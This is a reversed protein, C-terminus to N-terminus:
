RGMGGKELDGRILDFIHEALIENGRSLLHVSDMFIPEDVEDFIDTFDHMWPFRDRNEAIFGNVFKKYATIRATRETDDDNSYARFAELAEIDFRSLRSKTYLSPQAIAYFKIGFETCVGHIMREVAVWHAGRESFGRGYHVENTMLFTGPMPNKQVSKLRAIADFLTDQYSHVFRNKGDFDRGFDNFGSYSVVVDPRLPLFDRCLKIFGQSVIYGATGGGLVKLRIGHRAAVQALAEPWSKVAFDEIDSTSGGLVAVVKPPMKETSINPFGDVVMFGDEHAHNYGLNPDLATLSHLSEPVNWSHCFVKDGVGASKVFDIADDDAGYLVWVVIKGADEYLIDWKDRCVIGDETM